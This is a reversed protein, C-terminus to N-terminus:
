SDYSAAMAEKMLGLSKLASETVGQPAEGRKVCSKIIELAHIPHESLFGRPFEPNPRRGAPEGLCGRDGTHRPHSRPESGFSCGPRGGMKSPTDGTSVDPRRGPRELKPFFSERAFTAGRNRQVLKHPRVVQATSAPAATLTMVTDRREGM